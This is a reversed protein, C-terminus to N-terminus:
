LSGISLLDDFALTSDLVNSRFPCCEILNRFGEPASIADFAKKMAIEPQGATEPPDNGSSMGASQIM